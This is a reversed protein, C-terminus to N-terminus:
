PSVLITREYVARSLHPVAAQCPLKAIPPLFSAGRVQFLLAIIAVLDLSEVAVVAEGTPALAALVTAQIVRLLPPLAAERTFPELAALDLGEVVRLLAGMGAAAVFAARWAALDQATQAAEAETAPTTSPLLKAEIV